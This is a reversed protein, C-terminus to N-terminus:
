TDMSEYLELEPCQNWLIGRKTFRKSEILADPRMLSLEGRGTRMGTTKWCIEPRDPKGWLDEPFPIGGGSVVTYSTLAKVLRERRILNSPKALQRVSPHICPNISPHQSIQLTQPDTHLLWPFSFTTAQGIRTATEPAATLGWMLRGSPGDSGTPKHHSKKNTQTSIMFVWKSCECSKLTYEPLTERVDMIDSILLFDLIFYLLDSHLFDHDHGHPPSPKWWLWQGWPACTHTLCWRCHIITTESHRHTSGTGVM